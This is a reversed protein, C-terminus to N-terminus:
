ALLISKVQDQMEETVGCRMLYKEVGGYNQDIHSAVREIWDDPCDAFSDPLGISRIEVLREEREKVLQSQSLAYDAKIADLDVKLLLLVLLVVLGTRDKGQTCHVLLPWNDTSSALVSFVQKVEATCHDISDTALGVLGKEAMVETGLISIAELRYGTAMLALLKTVSWYRLQKILAWSYANGNFNIEAYTIGPIKVADAAQNNSPALPEASPVPKAARKQAQQIHESKTRLDIITSMKIGKVLAERDIQSAEDTHM